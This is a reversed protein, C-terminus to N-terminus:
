GKASAPLVGLVQLLRPLATLVLIALALDWWALQPTNQIFFGPLGKFVDGSSVVGVAGFYNNALHIGCTLAISGTRIVLYACVIGFWVANIAQPWGNPVHMAGFVLGSVCAAPLPQRLVLFIGQTLLGRFVFEETFTQVLVAGLVWLALMPVLHGGRYFGGPAIAFDTAALVCQVATWVALGWGFLSWRWCGIIDAPRKHQILRAAAAIGCAVLAFSVGIVGFFLWPDSPRNIQRAIDAPLLKFLALLISILIAAATAAVLGLLISLLYRWWANNGRSAQIFYKKAAADWNSVENTQSMNM